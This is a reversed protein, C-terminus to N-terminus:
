RAKNNFSIRPDTIAMVIDGLILSIVSLMAYFLTIGVIVSNDYANIARTLVNGVGPVVYVRETIIAGTISGLISGPVGHLIPIAANKMIHKRFIQGESLGGSRAFKVYDSNSQDIMYRRMWKMLGGISPLALSIIPLLYYLWNGSTDFRIPLGISMGIAKFMFIYALSPVAIIFIVYLTGIKDAIKDKKLAMLIGLPLGLFYAILTSIIGITFSYGMRSKGNKFTNLSTYDDTYRTQVFDGGKELSGEIYTASHLDDASQDIFGTPYAVEGKVDAGQTQTMTDWVDIGRNISYSTGLSISILNQHIFPFNGDFYLLYKHTTGNGMIAPAFKKKVVNGNEDYKYYVPDHMTISIKRDEKAIGTANHINDIKIIGTLFKWFRTFVNIDKYAFLAKLNSTGSRKYDLRVVTYGKKEYHEKFKQVYEKAVASDDAQTNGIDAAALEESNLGLEALYDAYPVYDLYGYREWQQYKYVEKVNGSKKTYEPDTAFVLERDMCSYVLLMVILVVILVSIIGHLLRKLIYKVM